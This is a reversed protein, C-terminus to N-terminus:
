TTSDHAEVIGLALTHHPDNALWACPEGHMEARWAALTQVVMGGLAPLAGFRREIPYRESSWGMNGMDFIASASTALCAPVAGEIEAQQLARRAAADLADTGAGAWEGRFFRIHGEAALVWLVAAEGAPLAAGPVPVAAECGACLIRTDAPANQIKDIVSDLTGIGNWVVPLPPLNVHPCSTSMQESFAQWTEASGHWYCDQITLSAPDPTQKQWQVALLRALQSERGAADPGFVQPLRLVEGGGLQRAVPMPHHSGFFRSRHAPESCQPGLLVSELLAVQQRHQTWWAREIHQATQAYVSANHRNLRYRLVRLLFASGWVGAVMLVVPSVLDQQLFSRLVRSSVGALALLAFGSALWRSYAPPPALPYAGFEPASKM